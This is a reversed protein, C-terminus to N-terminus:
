PLEQMVMAEAIPNIYTREADRALKLQQIADQWPQHYSALFYARLESLQGASLSDQPTSLASRLSEIGAIEAVELPTLARNFVRLEYVTGGKLGSDRFRHGLGLPPDGGEYRIDKSLHDREVEQA